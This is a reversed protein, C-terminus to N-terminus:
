AKAATRVIQQRQAPNTLSSSYVGQVNPDNSDVFYIFHNGDPLFQPYGHGSEKPSDVKTLLTAGGGSASVRQLGGSSGFLIVGDRNWTGTPTVRTNAADCLSLPAGGTIEVRKLKNDALFALSKSDPSWTPFNGGATGPLPRAALSDLPRL